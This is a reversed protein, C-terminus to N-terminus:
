KKGNYIVVTYEDIHSYVHGHWIEELRKIIITGYMGVSSSLHPTLRNLIITTYVDYIHGEEALMRYISTCLLATFHDSQGAQGTSSSSGGTLNARSPTTGIYVSGM